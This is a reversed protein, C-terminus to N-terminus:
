VERNTPLTLHTYSVPIRIKEFPSPKDLPWSSPERWETRFRSSFRPRLENRAMWALPLFRSLLRLSDPVLDYNIVGGHAVTYGGDLRKRFAFGHGSTSVEPGGPLPRTRLVSSIVKLQPVDIGLPKCFLCSWVGGALLVGNCDIRGKETM